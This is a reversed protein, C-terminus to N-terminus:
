EACLDCLVPTAAGHNRFKGGPSGCKWCKGDPTSPEIQKRLWDFFGESPKGSHWCKVYSDWKYRNHKLAQIIETTPKGDFKITNQMFNIQMAGEENIEYREQIAMDKEPTM